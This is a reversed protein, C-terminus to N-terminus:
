SSIGLSCRTQPLQAAVRFPARSEMSAQLARGDQTRRIRNRRNPAIMETEYIEALDKDLPDSNYAKDGILRKPFEPM